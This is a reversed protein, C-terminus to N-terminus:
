GSAPEVDRGSRLFVLISFALAVLCVIVAGLLVPAGGFFLAPLLATYYLADILFHTFMASELGFKWYIWGLAMGIGGNLGSIAVLNFASYRDTGIVDDIHAWGFLLGTVLIAIWISAGSSFGGGKRIRGLLWVVLSLLFYRYFLEESVGADVSALLGRWWGPYLAALEALRGPVGSVGRDVTVILPIAGVIVLSSVIAVIFSLSVARAFRHWVPSGELWGELFPLGLGTRASLYQGVRIVLFALLLGIPATPLWRTAPVTEILMPISCLKGFVWLALLIWFLKM